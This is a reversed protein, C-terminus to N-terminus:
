SAGTATVRLRSRSLEGGEAVVSSQGLSFMLALGLTVVSLIVGAILVELLAIGREDALIM